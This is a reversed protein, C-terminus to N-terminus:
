TIQQLNAPSIDFYIVCMHTHHSQREIHTPTYHRQHHEHQIHFSLSCYLCHTWTAQTHRWVSMRQRQSVSFEIPEVKIEIWKRITKADVKYRANCSLSFFFENFVFHTQLSRIFFCIYSGSDDSAVLVIYFSVSQFLVCHFRTHKHGPYFWNM